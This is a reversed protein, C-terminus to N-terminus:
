LGSVEKFKKKMEELEKVAYELQKAKENTTELLAKIQEAKDDNAEQLEKIQKSSDVAFAVSTEKQETHTKELEQKLVLLIVDM